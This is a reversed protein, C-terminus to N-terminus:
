NILKCDILRIINNNKLQIKSTRNVIVVLPEEDKLDQYILAMGTEKNDTTKISYTGSKIHRGVEYTGSDLTDVYADEIKVAYCGNLQLIDSENLSVIYNYKFKDVIINENKIITVDAYDYSYNNFLVYVGILNTKKGNIKEISETNVNIFSKYKKGNYEATIITNGVGKAEILGENNVKAVKKKTSSWKINKNNIPKGNSGILSLEFESGIMLELETNSLATERTAKVNESGTLSIIAILLILIYKNKVM